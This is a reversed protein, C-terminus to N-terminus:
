RPLPWQHHIAFFLIYLPGRASHDGQGQSYRPYAPAWFLRTHENARESGQVGHKATSSSPPGVQRPVPQMQLKPSTYSAHLYLDGPRRREDLRSDEAVDLLSWTTM